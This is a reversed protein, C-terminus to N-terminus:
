NTKPQNVARQPVRPPASKKGNQTLKSRKGYKGEQPRLEERVAGIGESVSEYLLHADLST